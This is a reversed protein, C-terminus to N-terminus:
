GQKYNPCFFNRFILILIPSIIIFLMIYTMFTNRRVKHNIDISAISEDDYSLDNFDEDNISIPESVFTQSELETPTISRRNM